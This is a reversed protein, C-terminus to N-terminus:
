RTHSRAGRFRTAALEAIQAPDAPKTLHADFGASMARERDADQGWGTIAVLFLVGPHREHRLRSALQYGNMDAMGIDLLGVEPDFSRAQKLAEEGGYAIKVQHGSAELLGGLMDAADRNDDVVLIRRSAMPPRDFPLMDGSPVTSRPLTGRFEAGRGLGESRAEVRGGHLEVLAKVLTLGIGLGGHRAPGIQVFREFVRELDAAAIGHGTDRM